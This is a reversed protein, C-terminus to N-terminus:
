YFEVLQEDYLELLLTIFEQYDIEKEKCFSEIEPLTDTNIVYKWM